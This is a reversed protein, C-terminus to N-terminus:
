RYLQIYFKVKADPEIEHQIAPEIVGPHDPSLRAEEINPEMIRYTLSGELIVIMGWTGPKTSHSELLAKPVSRETFEPTRKYPMVDPPLMKVDLSNMLQVPMLAACLGNRQRRVKAAPRHRRDRLSARRYSAAYRGLEAARILRM